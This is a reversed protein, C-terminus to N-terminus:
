VHVTASRVAGPVAISRAGAETVPLAVAVKANELSAPAVYSHETSPSLKAGHSVGSCSVPSATPSCVSSTRATSAAPLASALGDRCSHVTTAGGSVSSSAAVSGSGPTVLRVSVNEESWLPALKSHESSKPGQLAQEEGCVSVPRESPSWATSTRAFLGCPTRSGSGASNSNVTSVGGSVVMADPGAASVRLPEALKV